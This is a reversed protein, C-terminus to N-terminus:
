AVALKTLPVVSVVIGDEFPTGDTLFWEFQRQYIKIPSFMNIVKKTTHTRWGGSNLIYRGDAYIKVVDTSHLVVSFSNDIENYHLYTNNRLKKRGGRGRKILDLCESYTM